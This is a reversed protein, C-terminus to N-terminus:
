QAAKIAQFRTLLLFVEWMRGSTAPSSNAMNMAISSIWYTWVLVCMPGNGDSLKERADTPSEPKTSSEVADVM